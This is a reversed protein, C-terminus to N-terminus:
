PTPAGPTPFATPEHPNPGATPIVVEVATGRGPASEIVLGGRHAHLVRYVIALGLGRHRVKTTFFPEAFLRARVEPPIGAGQDAVRAAVHSGAGVAGLFRRAEQPSLDVKRCRVEVRGQTGSAEVANDLLHALVSQLQAVDMAAMPLGSPVDTTLQVGPPLAPRIRAEERALVTGVSGPQPRAQGSRSLQHLQQTFLVGRQGVRGVEALYQHPTSGAPLLPLALETFGLIGTLINDFDHAMRGAIVSADQLRQLLRAEDVAAGVRRALHPSRALLLAALGFVAREEDAWSRGDGRLIWAIGVPKGSLAVPAALIEEGNARTTPIAHAADRQAELRAVLAEDPTPPEATGARVDIEPRGAAPWRLGAGDAGFAGGLDAIVQELTGTEPPVGLLRPLFACASGIGSASFM